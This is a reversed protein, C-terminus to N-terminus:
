AVPLAHASEAAAKFNDNETEIARRILRGLLLGVLRASWGELDIRLVSTTGSGTPLLDHSATMRSGLFPAQWVFRRPPTVEVVTWTRAASGPQKVRVQSGPRLPGTDLREVATVTPTVDPWAEVDITLHWLLEPPAAVDLAHELRM